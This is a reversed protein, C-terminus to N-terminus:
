SAHDAGTSIWQLFEGPTVVQIGFRLGPEKLHRLNHTVIADATANIAVELVMDDAPDPSLNRYRRKMRIPEALDELVSLIDGVQRVTLGSAKRQEPRAAVDRYESSVKYDLCLTVEGVRILDLIKASAGNPSRLGAVLVSTDM